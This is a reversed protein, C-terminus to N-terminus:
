EIRDVVEVTVRRDRVRRRVSRALDGEVFRRIRSGSQPDMVVREVQRIRAVRAFAKAPSRTIMVQGDAEVGLRNLAEIASQVQLRQTEQEKKTPLLGPNPLGLGSGHLKAIAIVAVPADGSVQAARALAENSFPTGPSALLVSAPATPQRDLRRRRM